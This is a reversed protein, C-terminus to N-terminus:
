LHHEFEFGFSHTLFFNGVDFLTKEVFFGEFFLNLVDNLLDEIVGDLHILNDDGEVFILFFWEFIRPNEEIHTTQLISEVCYSLQGCIVKVFSVFIM